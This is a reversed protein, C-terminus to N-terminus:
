AAPGPRVFLSALESFASLVRQGTAELADRQCSGGPVLIVPLGARAATLVDLVMDGVYVGAGPHLDLAQLSRRLMEPHPKTAGASDPGQVDDVYELLGLTELIARGFRAPKNSAVALGYGRRRLERITEAVGPLTFTRDSFVEAYRERFIRVGADVHQPGVLRSVLSELGHGVRCRIEDGALPPLAFAARAHNLSEAIAGYSDVLTGDLDFVIGRVREVALTPPSDSPHPVVRTLPPVRQAM